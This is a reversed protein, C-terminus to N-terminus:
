EREKKIETRLLKGETRVFLRGGRVSDGGNGERPVRGNRIIMQLIRPSVRAESFRVLFILFRGRCTDAVVISRDTAFLRRAAIEATGGSVISHGVARRRSRSARDREMEMNGREDVVISGNRGHPGSRSPDRPVRYYLAYSLPM